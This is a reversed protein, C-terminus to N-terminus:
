RSLLGDRVETIAIGLYNLGQWTAKDWARPDNAGLGIGWIKDQPSAEVFENGMHEEAMLFRFLDENQTFKAYNARFVVDMCISDWVAKDFGRVRRGIAKQNAPDVSEMIDDFAATDKFVKAKQAMMYQENCNYKIGDIVMDARHWQSFPGSWFLVFGNKIM